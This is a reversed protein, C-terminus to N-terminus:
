NNSIMHKEFAACAVPAVGRALLYMANAYARAEEQAHPHMRLALFKFLNNLDMQYYWETYLGVPLVIRAQERSVGLDLLHKYASYAEAYIFTITDDADIYDIAPIPDGSCQKNQTSQSRWTDPYYFEEEVVSYRASVENIRATRHRVFQRAVFIPLKMHFVLVVSELPSTHQNKVLYDILKADESVTKTGPGYSVRAAQVIASDDGMYRVLRVFGHDLVPIETYLSL